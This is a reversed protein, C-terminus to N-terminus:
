ENVTKRNHRPYDPRAAFRIAFKERRRTEDYAPLPPLTIGEKERLAAIQERIWRHKQIDGESMVSREFLLITGSGRPRYTSLIRKVGTESIRMKPRCLRLTDVTCRVAVSHKEGRARAEDYASTVRALRGFQWPEVSDKIKRPRGRPKKEM